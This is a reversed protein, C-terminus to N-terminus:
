PGIEACVVTHSNDPVIMQVAPGSIQHASWNIRHHGAKVNSFKCTSSVQLRSPNRVGANVNFEVTRECPGGYPPLFTDISLTFRYKNLGTGPNIADASGTAACRWIQGDPITFESSSLTVWGVAVVQKDTTTQAGGVHTGQASLNFPIVALPVLSIILATQKAANM